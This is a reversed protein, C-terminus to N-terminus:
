AKKAVRKRVPGAEPKPARKSVATAAPAAKTPRPRAPAKTAAGKAPAAKKVPAAKTTTSAAKRPRKGNESAERVLRKAEQDLLRKPTRTVGRTGNRKELRQVVLTYKDEVHVSVLVPKESTKSQRTATTRIIRELNGAEGDFDPVKGEPLDPTDSSHLRWIAGNLWRTWPYNPSRRKSQRRSPASWDYEALIESM